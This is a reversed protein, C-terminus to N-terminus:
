EMLDEYYNNWLKMIKYDLNSFRENNKNNKIMHDLYKKMGVIVVLKKARTVATYILNRSLLM